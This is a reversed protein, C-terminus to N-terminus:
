RLMGELDLTKSTKRMSTRVGGVDVGVDFEAPRTRFLGVYAPKKLCLTVVKARDRTSFELCSGQSLVGIPTRGLLERVRKALHLTITPTWEQLIADSRHFFDNLTM